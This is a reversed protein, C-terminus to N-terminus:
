DFAIVTKEGRFMLAKIADRGASDKGISLSNYDSVKGGDEVKGQVKVAVRGNASFSVTAQAGSAEYKVDYTGAQIETGAVFMTRAVKFKSTGEAFSMMPAAVLLVVLTVLMLCKYNKFM